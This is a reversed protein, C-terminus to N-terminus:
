SSVFGNACPTARSSSDRCLSRITDTMFFLMRGPLTKM